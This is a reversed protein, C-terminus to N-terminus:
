QHTFSAAISGLDWPRIKSSLPLLSSTPFHDSPASPLRWPPCLAAPPSISPRFPPFTEPMYILRESPQFLISRVFTQFPSPLSAKPRRALSLPSSRENEKRGRKEIPPSSAIRSFPITNHEWLWVVSFSFPLSFSHRATPPSDLSASPSLSLTMEDGCNLANGFSGAQRVIRGRLNPVM